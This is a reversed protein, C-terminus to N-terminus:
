FYLGFTLSQFEPGKDKKMLSMPMYKCYLGINKYTFIGMLSVTVPRYEIDKTSIDMENDDLDFVSNLRGRLNFNVVPGVTFKCRSKRGLKQTFLFPVSISYMNIRSVANKAKAPYDALGVVDHADKVFMKNTSLGYTDWGLWIGTSYTQLAKEPTYKFRLGFFIEWSRFTAFGYGDSTALPTNVGVAVDFDLDFPNYKERNRRAQRMKQENLPVKEDYRFGADGEQGMISIQQSSDTTVIMVKNAKSVVVTDITENAQATMAAILVLMTLLKKMVM